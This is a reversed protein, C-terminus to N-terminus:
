RRLGRHLLAIRVAQVYNAGGPVCLVLVASRVLSNAGTLQGVDHQRMEGPQRKAVLVQACNRGRARSAGGRDAGGGQLFAVIPDPSAATPYM